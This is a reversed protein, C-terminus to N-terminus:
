GNQGCAVPPTILQLVQKGAKNYGTVVAYFTDGNLGSRNRGGQDRDCSQLVHTGQLSYPVFEGDFAVGLFAPLELGVTNTKFESRNRFQTVDPTFTSTETDHLAGSYDMWRTEVVVKRLIGRCNQWRVNTRLQLYLPDPNGWELGAALAPSACRKKMPLDAANVSSIGLGAPLIALACSMAIVSLRAGIGSPFKHM